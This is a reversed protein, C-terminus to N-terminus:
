FIFPILDERSGPGAERALSCMPQLGPALESVLSNLREITPGCRKIVDGLKLEQVKFVRFCIFLEKQSVDVAIVRVEERVRFPRRVRVFGEGGFFALECLLEEKSSKRRIRVGRMSFEEVRHEKQRKRGLLM